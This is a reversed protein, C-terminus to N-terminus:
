EVKSKEKAGVRKGIWESQLGKELDAAIFDACNELICFYDQGQAIVNLYNGILPVRRYKETWAPPTDAKAVLNSASTDASPPFQPTDYKPTMESACFLSWALMNPSHSKVLTYNQRHSPFLPLSSFIADAQVLNVVELWM